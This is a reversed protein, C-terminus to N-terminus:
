LIRRAYPWGSPWCSPWTLAAIRQLNLYSRELKRGSETITERYQKMVASEPPGLPGLPRQAKEQTKEACEAQKRGALDPM